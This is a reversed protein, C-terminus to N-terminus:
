KLSQEMSQQSSHIDWIWQISYETSIHLRNLRCHLQVRCNIADLSFSQSFFPTSFVTITGMEPGVQGNPTQKIFGPAGINM